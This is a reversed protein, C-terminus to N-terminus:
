CSSSTCGGSCSPGTPGTGSAPPPGSWWCTSCRGARGGATAGWPSICISGSGPASPSTGGGGSSPSAKPPLFEFGLMRGLGVAMDSYGSFDFYIQFTFALVGLWAGAVTLEAPAMAKYSDWLMGVNNAILLKKALGVMFIQVGSSFKDASYDRRDIQDGLDKYKIIPGAILQPFLTVFTGFNLINRQARADGRYVDITYSMTQFTYFSIGIPLHVGLVPMFTLGVSQLSGAIFDWYKFFCLLALNFVISSAVAMKAGKGNGRAKCREVLLGHTYDIATSLFMIAVYAREGWWYFFLSSALLVVNRGRRPVIYYLFLTFVLFYFMFIPTSFVM